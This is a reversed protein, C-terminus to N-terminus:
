SSALNNVLLTTAERQYPCSLEGKLTVWGKKMILAEKSHPTYQSWTLTNVVKPIFKILIQVDKQVEKNINM